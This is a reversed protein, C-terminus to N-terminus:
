IRLPDTSSASVEASTQDLFDSLCDWVIILVESDAYPSTQSTSTSLLKTLETALDFLQTPWPVLTSVPSTLGALWGRIPQKFILATGRFHKGRRRTM